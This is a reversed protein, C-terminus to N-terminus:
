ELQEGTTEGRMFQDRFRFYGYRTAAVAPYWPQGGLAGHALWLSLTSKPGEGFLTARRLVAVRLRDHATQKLKSWTFGLAEALWRLAFGFGGSRADREIRVWDVSYRELLLRTDTLHREDWAFGHNAYHLAAYLVQDSPDLSLVPGDVSPYSRARAIMTTETARYPPSGLGRHLDISLGVGDVPMFTWERSQNNTYRHHEHV